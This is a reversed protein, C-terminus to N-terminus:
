RMIIAVLVTNYQKRILRPIIMRSFSQMPGQGCCHYSLTSTTLATEQSLITNPSPDSKNSIQVARMTILAVVVDIVIRDYIGM